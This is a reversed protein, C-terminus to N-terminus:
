DIEIMFEPPNGEKRYLSMIRELLDRKAVIKMAGGWHLSTMSNMQKYTPTNTKTNHSLKLTFSGYNLGKVVIQFIAEAREYHPLTKDKKWNLGAFAQDRFFHRQDIDEAAGKKWLMSGTPNTNGGSPINLDRETLKRSEWILVFEPVQVVSASTPTPVPTAPTVAAAASKAKVTRRKRVPASHRVLKMAKLKDRDGKRVSSVVTPAVVVDEDVLRGDDFLRDIAATSMVEFVHDPFRAPLEDLIKLTSDFFARDDTNALDLALIAGAEINNHLGSFTMNASGIIAAADMKGKALFVKPHFIISRSGTDLHM